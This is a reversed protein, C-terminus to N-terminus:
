YAPAPAPPGAGAELAAPDVSATPQPGGPLPTRAAEQMASEIHLLREATRPSLTIPRKVGEIALPTAEAVAGDLKPVPLGELSPPPKLDIGQHAFAMVKQWTMAPLSGGTMKKTSTYDDNGFWIAGVYNGTFGVFWADRYANTTGTKGAVKVGPLMARRGTGNEVVSNLMPVIEAIIDHPIVRHPKPGDRDFSWVPEGAPTRMEVVAHPDVSMGDNAFVAYGTAQDLVTVEAAGLPLARTIKLESKVGMAHALDVIRGRGIAEALKVAVTNLSRTLATILPIRGAYSRGYNQPCWNGICIPGDVVMTDPTYKGTMLAATYVYPKFSSGPQRLADTARNFQSEGYDTGGVMARLAGNPELVVMASQTAGYDKGFQRISDRIATDAAKQINPDLATRVMFSREAYTKPLTDVIAKVQNFAFDLYYEPVDDQKRDVPTAPNRRAGFVQGETMFGADVLNDLVVSARGRAAPLNVHPAYKSPAKFLGALMAAEALSVDRVSKGFYYQAAADVGFTGGGMYARDLYLKLIQNKTLHFELWLALFAEKIKRELTRENSLFLNKALQQTLSSGGQVVGGARANSVVARLTGAIDIGFHEYFRRDETALVAKILHDPFEDLPVTDNHRIGREGIVNGYRDQFVVSLEARKLWDASTEHFAPLALALMLVAGVTGWTTLESALSAGWRAPGQLNFRETFAAYSEIAGRLRSGSSFIASDIWSDIALLIQRFRRWGGARARPEPVRAPAPSRGPPAAADPPAAEDQPRENM